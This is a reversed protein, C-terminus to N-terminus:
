PTGAGRYFRDPQGAVNTDTFSFTGLGDSFVTALNTWPGQPTGAALVQNSAFPFGNFNVVTAGAAPVEQSSLAWIQDNSRRPTPVFLNLIGPDEDPNSGSSGDASQSLLDVADVIQGASNVLGIISSQVAYLGVGPPAAPSASNLLGIVPSPELSFNVHLDSGSNQSTLGDAWVLLFGGAPLSYGSPIQFEFLNTPSSTLYYGALNLTTNGANYLEFWPEFQGNAPDALTRTNDTMWENICISPLSSPPPTDNYVYFEYISPTSTM